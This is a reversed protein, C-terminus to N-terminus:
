NIRFLNTKKWNKTKRNKRYNKKAEDVGLDDLFESNVMHGNGVYAEKMKEGSRSDNKDSVVRIIPLKYKKAFDFDRQDHAPRGFIAGNGYDMLVFNAVYVPIKKDKLFPHEAFM